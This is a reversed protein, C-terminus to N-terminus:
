SPSAADHSSMRPVCLEIVNLDGRREYCKLTCFQGILFVGLGGIPLKDANEALQPLKISTFPDHPPAADQYVLRCGGATPALEFWVPQDSDGGYGHEITNCFLEEAILVLRQIYDHPLVACAAEVFDRVARFEARRAGFRRKEAIDV